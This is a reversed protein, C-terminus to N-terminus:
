GSSWRTNLIPEVLQFYCAALFVTAIRKDPRGLISESDGVFRGRKCRGFGFRSGIQEVWSSDYRCVEMITGCDRDALVVDGEWAESDVRQISLTWEKAPHEVEALWGRPRDSTPGITAAGILQEGARLEGFMTASGFFVGHLTCLDCMFQGGACEGTVLCRKPWHAKFRYTVIPLATSRDEALGGTLISVPYTLRFDRYVVGKFGGWDCDILPVLPHRGSFLIM